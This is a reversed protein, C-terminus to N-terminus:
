IPAHLNFALIDNDNSKISESEVRDKSSVGAKTLYQNAIPIFM